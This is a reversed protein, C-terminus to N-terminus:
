GVKQFLCIMDAGSPIKSEIYQFGMEECLEKLTPLNFKLQHEDKYAGKQFIGYLKDMWKGRFGGFNPTALILKGNPKLKNHMVKLGQRVVEMHKLHEIVEICIVTDQSEALVMDQIEDFGGTIFSNHNLLHKGNMYRIKSNNIDFGVYDDHNILLGQPSSGCGIDLLKGASGNPIEAFDKVINAIIRKWRKQWPLGKFFSVWEYDEDKATRKKEKWILKNAISYKIISAVGSALLASLMYWMGFVETLFALVVLDTGDGIASNGLYKFWGVVVNKNTSKKHRFTWHYNIIYNNTKIRTIFKNNQFSSFNFWFVFSWTGSKCIIFKY